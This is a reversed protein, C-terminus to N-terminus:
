FGAACDQKYSGCTSHAETCKYTPGEGYPYECACFKYHRYVYYTITCTQGHPATSQSIMTYHRLNIITSNCEFGKPSTHTANASVAMSAAMVGAVMVATIKKLITM